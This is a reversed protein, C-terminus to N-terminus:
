FSAFPSRPLFNISPCFATINGSLANRIHKFIYYFQQKLYGVKLSATQYLRSGPGFWGTFRFFEDLSCRCLGSQDSTWGKLGRTEFTIKSLNMGGSYKYNVEFTTTLPVGNGDTVEVFLSSENALAWQSLCRTVILSIFTM